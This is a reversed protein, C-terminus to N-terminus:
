LFSTFSQTDHFPVRSAIEDGSGGKDEFGLPVKSSFGLSARRASALLTAPVSCVDELDHVDRAGARVNRTGLVTLPQKPTVASARGFKAPSLAGFCGETSQKLAAAHQLLQKARGLRASKGFM